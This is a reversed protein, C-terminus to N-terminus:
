PLRVRVGCVARAVRHGAVCQGCGGDRLGPTTGGRPGLGTM